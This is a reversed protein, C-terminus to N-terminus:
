LDISVFGLLDAVSVGLLLLVVCYFADILRTRTRNDM